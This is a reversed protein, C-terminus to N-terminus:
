ANLCTCMAMRRWLAVWAGPRCLPPLARSM